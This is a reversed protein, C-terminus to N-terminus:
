HTESDDSPPSMKKLEEALNKLQEFGQIIENPNKNQLSSELISSVVQGGLQHVIEDKADEKKAQQQLKFLAIEKETQAKIIEIEKATEERIAAIEKATEEKTKKITSRSSILTTSISIILPIFIPLMWKLTEEM